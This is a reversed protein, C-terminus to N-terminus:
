PPFPHHQNPKSAYFFGVKRRTDLPVFFTTSVGLARLFPGENQVRHYRYIGWFRGGMKPPTKNGLM